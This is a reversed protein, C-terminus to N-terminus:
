NVVNAKEIESIPKKSSDDRWAHAGERACAKRNNLKNGVLSTASILVNSSSSLSCQLNGVAAKQQQRFIFDRSPVNL